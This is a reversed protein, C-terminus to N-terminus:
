RKLTEATVDAIIQDVDLNHVRDLITKCTHAICAQAFTPPDVNRESLRLADIEALLDLVYDAPVMSGLRDSAGQRISALRFADPRKRNTM